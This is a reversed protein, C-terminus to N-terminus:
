KSAEIKFSYIQDGLKQREAETVLDLDNLIEIMTEIKNQEMDVTGFNRYFNFDTIMSKIDDTVRDMIVKKVEGKTVIENEDFAM